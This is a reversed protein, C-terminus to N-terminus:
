YLVEIENLNKLKELEEPNVDVVIIGQSRIESESCYKKMIDVAEQKTDFTFYEGDDNVMYEVGTLWSGDEPRAIVWVKM